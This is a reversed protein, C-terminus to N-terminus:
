LTTFAGALWDRFAAVRATNWRDARAFFMYRGLTVPSSAGSPGIRVLRGTELADRLLLANSLAIGEGNLAAELSLHAQWLRPGPINEGAELGHSRFWARWEADDEEHLLHHALVDDASLAPGTRALYTPSAVALTAPAALEMVRLGPRQAVVDWQRLYRIDADVESSAFDARQETPRLSLEIDAYQARFAPLRPMLWHYALGPSACVLLRPDNSRRLEETANALGELLRSIAAHYRCGEETLKADVDNGRAVLATGVYAELARLHRSVVAHDVGLDAAAKRVGRLRGFAEFARLMAFPPVPRKQM